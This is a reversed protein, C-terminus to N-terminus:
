QQKVLIMKNTYGEISVVYYKQIKISENFIVPIVNEGTVVAVSQSYILRGTGVEYMRLKVQKDKDSHVVCTFKNSTVPNPYVTLAKSTLNNVYVGDYKTFRVNSLTTSYVTTAGTGIIYSFDIATVDSLNISGGLVSSFQNMAITYDATNNQAPITVSYQKNWDTISNKVLTIKISSIGSLAATFKLGKYETLDRSLGAAKMLKYVTVYDKSSGNVTVNRFMRWEDNKTSLTDNSVAYKSITTTAANYNIDWTGDNSYVMDQESLTGDYLKVDQQYNDAVDIDVVTQAFPTLTVPILKYPSANSLENAYSTLQVTTSTAAGTNNIVLQLQKGNRTHSAVYVSPVIPTLLQMYPHYTGLNNLLDAAMSKAVTASSAWIQFNYMNDFGSYNENLWTSQIQFLNEGNNIGASLSIAYEVYGERQLLKYMVLKTGNVEVTKVDMLVAERLRDCVPKTHNYIVSSTKTAFTVARCINSISYDQAYVESANTFGTIDLPTRDYVNVTNNLVKQVSMKGPFVDSLSMTGGAGMVVVGKFNNVPTLKNYDTTRTESNWIKNMVRKGVIEGLGKSEMGGTEGGSVEGSCDLVTINKTVSDACSNATLKYIIAASGVSVTSVIGATDVTIISTDSSYWSGGPTANTLVLTTDICVSSNGAVPTNLMAYLHLNLTAASDCGLANTLHVTYTGAAHYSNGNWTLPLSANCITTDTTSVSSALVTLNLTAASDCGVSNNLHVTYNGATNYSNGNWIYPLSSQCVSVNIHSTSASLVTLNLTAASDCGVNNNLHVTYTGAANYNNGNWSYPLATNCITTATTSTTSSLVTLNLTAASDCGVSNTLHITYNGTTTYNISNWSYPLAANCVSVLTNSSSSSLVTLNLTAASDCGVSNTLHVTYTGAANYSNGNWSYPLSFDCITANSVSSSNALVNLNLTAVSDCGLSNTLHVTFTGAANYSNNNWNYPLAVPCVSINTVSTSASLVTLNLTAASDCGISNTFHVTYVGAAHYSNGNWTYPLANVCVAANTTSTSVPRITVLMTDTCHANAYIFLYSGNAANSFSVSAVGANTTGLMAGTPNTNLATWSGNLLVLGNLNTATGACVIQDTGASFGTCYATANVVVFSTDNAISSDNALHNVYATNNISGIGTVQAVINLTDSVGPAITGLSWVSAWYFGTNATSSIFNLSSPLIDNLVVNDANEPGNNKVIIRFTVNDFQTVNAHNVTKTVQIDSYMAYGADITNNDKAVGTGAANITVMESYGTAKDADSNNDTNSTQNATTLPRGQYSTPFKVYYNGSSLNTFSYTGNSATVTSDVLNSNSTRYLYVAMGDIGSNEDMLGNANSDIWVKNGISGGSCVNVPTHISAASCVCDFLGAKVVLGNALTCSAGNITATFLASDGQAIPGTIVSSDLASGAANGTADSCYYYVKVTSGAAINGNTVKIAASLNVTNVYKNYCATIGNGIAITPKVISIQTSTSGTLTAISSCSTAGCTPGPVFSKFDAVIPLNTGCNGLGNSVLGISYDFRTGSAAGAPVKLVVVSTGDNNYETTVYSPSSFSSSAYTGSQYAIGVPLTIYISDSSGTVGAVTISSFSATSVTNCNTINVPAVSTNVTYYPTNIGAVYVANSAVAIGNGVAATACPQNAFAKFVIQSGITFSCDNQVSFQVAINRLNVASTTGLGPIGTSPYNPHSSLLYVPHAATGTNTITAWNGSNAPYEAQLPSSINLGTPLIMEFRPNILNAAQASNLLLSYSAPTCSTIASAPQTVLSLQVESVQPQVKLYQQVSTCTYSNPDPSPYATFDWGAKMKISDLGCKTFHFYVRAQQNAGGTLGTTSIQYWTDSSNFTNSTLKVNSPKLVVSDVSIASGSPKELSMWLYPTNVASTNNIQVDWYHQANIGQVIGTNNQVSISPAALANNIIQTTTTTSKNVYTGANGTYAFDRFYWTQTQNFAGSTAACTPTVYYRYLYCPSARRAFDAEGWGTGGIKAPNPNRVVWTNGTTNVIPARNNFPAATFTSPNTFYYYYYPLNAANTSITYGAPLSVVISDIMTQPRYENPFIDYANSAGMYLNSASLVYSGPQTYTAPAWISAGAIGSLFINVMHPTDCAARANSATLNYLLSRTNPVRTLVSGYLQASNATTVSVKFDLWVSDGDYVMKNYLNNTLNWLMDQVTTTSGTVVPDSLSSTYTAGAHIQNFTGGVFAFVNTNSIKGLKLDYYLNGYSGATAMQKGPIIIQFTDLPLGTIKAQGTVSSPNVKTTMSTDTWGLSTRSVIPMFNKIGDTCPASCLVFVSDTLCAYNELATACYDGAYYNKFAIKKYGGGSGASCNYTFDAKFCFQSVKGKRQIRITTTGDGNNITSYSGAQTAIANFNYQVNPTASLAMGQPVTLDLYLSDKPIYGFNGVSGLDVCYQVTFVSDAIIQSPITVTPTIYQIRANIGSPLPNTTFSATGCMNTYSLTHASFYGYAPMPCSNNNIHHMYVTITVTKGIALDDFQGDGDLDDLGINAGDPDSTLATFNAYGSVTATAAVFPVTISGIKVSDVRGQIASSIGAPPNTTCCNNFGLNALISYAAGALGGTGNNTYTVTYIGTQCWNLAQVATWTSTINATGNDMIINTSGTAVQCFSWSSHDWGAAYSTTSGCKLVKVHEVISVSEGNCLLNDGFVTAGAIKFFLTDGNSSVPSFNTGNVTIQNGVLQTGTNTYVIYFRLTDLCGTGGNSVISTRTYTTGFNAGTIAAAPTISLSPYYLNYTNVTNNNENKTGATSSVTVADKMVGGGLVYSYVSCSTSKRKITFSVYEGVGINGSNNLAFVPANLNTINQETVGVSGSLVVISGQVYSIGVPFNVTVKGNTGATLVDVRINLTGNDLGASFSQAANPYSIVFQAKSTIFSAFLLLLLTSLKKM